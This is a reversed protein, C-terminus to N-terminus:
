ASEDETPPGCHNHIHTAAIASHGMAVVIQDLGRVVDGAAYLGEVTTQNHEDVRLAGSADHEAGLSKALGSRYRLGLASYLVEFRHEHGDIRVASIRGDAMDLSSVPEEIVKIGHRQALRRQEPSLELTDGLTLLTVDDSYTRAIFAAEGLGRDGHGIVAIRRGRAEFGDCIPCYRVLGRRVADPLDPLDPEVDVAGTALVVRRAEIRRPEAGAHELVAVFGDRARELTTVTGGVIPVDYRGVAEAQRALIETGAIGDAFFPVNHSTPIWAARPAGDDAVLVRRRFRALYLAATLGAPGGGIILADLMPAM